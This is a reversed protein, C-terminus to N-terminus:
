DVHEAVLGRAHRSLEQVDGGLVGGILLRDLGVEAPFGISIAVKTTAVVAIIGGRGLSAVVLPVLVLLAAPLLHHGRGVM